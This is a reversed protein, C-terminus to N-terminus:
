EGKRTWGYRLRQGRLSERRFKTGARSRLDFDAIEEETLWPESRRTFRRDRLWVWYAARGDTVRSKTKVSLRLYCSVSNTWYPLNCMAADVDVWQLIWVHIGSTETETDPVFSVKCISALEQLLFQLTGELETPHWRRTLGNITKHIEAIYENKRVKRTECEPMFPRVDLGDYYDGGCSERFKNLHLYDSSFHTKEINIKFGMLEFAWIVGPAAFNPVLIDDGYVSVLGPEKLLVCVAKACAYFLITQLPFTHGSGMLMMSALEVPEEQGGTFDFMPTRMAEVIAFWEPPLLRKLHDRMFSDSAKSMDITALQGSVSGKQAWRKHRQQQLSLDINTSAELRGRMYLGLGRSLFGGVATDPFVIRAAKWSKPVTTGNIVSTQSFFIKREKRTARMLHIDRARIADFICLQQQTGELHQVRLDIFSDQRRLGKAAKGGFGCFESFENFDFEGLIGEVIKAAECIVQEARRDISLTKKQFDQFDAISRSSLEEQSPDDKFILRKHFNELQYWVKFTYPQSGWYSISPAVRHNRTMKQLGFARERTGPVTLDTVLGSFTKRYLKELCYLPETKRQVKNHKQTLTM